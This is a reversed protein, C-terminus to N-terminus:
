LRARGDGNVTAERLHGDIQESPQGSLCSLRSQMRLYDLVKYIAYPYIEQIHDMSIAQM